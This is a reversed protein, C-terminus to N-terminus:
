HYDELDIKKALGNEWEFTIRHNGSVKMAYRTPKHGQLAHFRFALMNLEVIKEAADLVDLIMTIREIQDQRVGQPKGEIYLKKLGKHKFNDIM